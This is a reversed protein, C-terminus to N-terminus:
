HWHFVNRRITGVHRQFANAQEDARNHHSQGTPFPLLFDFQWRFPLMIQRLNLIIFSTVLQNDISEDNMM